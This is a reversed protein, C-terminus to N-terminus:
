NLTLSKRADCITNAVTGLQIIRLEYNGPKLASMDLTAQWGANALEPKSFHTAVDPRALGLAVQMYVKNAGGIELFVVKPLTGVVPDAAWGSLRVKTKDAVPTLETAIADNVLDVSCDQTIALPEPITAPRTASVAGSGLVSPPTAVVPVPKDSCAALLSALVTAFLIRNM